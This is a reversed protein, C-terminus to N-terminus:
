AILGGPQATIQGQNIVAVPETGESHFRGPLFDDNTINMTSAVFGATNIRATETIHIGAPNILLVLGNSLLAGAITSLSGGTVRNLVSATPSAQSFHFVVSELAGIDFQPFNLIAQDSDITLSLSDQTHESSVSGQEVTYDTPLAAVPTAAWLMACALALSTRRLGKIRVLVSRSSGSHTAFSM